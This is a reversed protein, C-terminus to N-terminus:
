MIYIKYHINQQQQQQQKPKVQRRTTEGDMLEVDLGIVQNRHLYLLSFSLIFQFTSWKLDEVTIQGFMTQEITIGLDM